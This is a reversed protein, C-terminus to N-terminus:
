IEDKPLETGYRHPYVEGDDEYARYWRDGCCPCDRGISNGDEDEECGNFYIGIREALDNAESASNAEILVDTDLNEDRDWVGGSNNQRYYYFKM